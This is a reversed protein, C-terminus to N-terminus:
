GDRAGPGFEAFRGKNLMRRLVKRAAPYRDIAYQNDVTVSRYYILARVRGKDLAWNFLRKTFRGGPDADWPSYEGIVFPWKDYRRYFRRLDDFAGSFKSFIDAGVWDVYGKGPFYDGPQNGRINPSGFTQPVWMFAVKPREMEAPVETGEQQYVPDQNSSAGYIRPQHQKRLRRNVNARTGGRVIIVARRWAAKFDKTTHNGDRRSGNANFACYPNWHGNMEPFLRIYVRKNWNGISENLRVLYHDGRGKAIAEPSIEPGGSEPLANSLSLVGLTKTNEWRYLAGSSRLPTDWHFFEQLLAPHARVQRQFDEFSGVSGADSVGHFIKNGPPKYASAGSAPAWLLMLAVAAVAAGLGAGQLRFTSVWGM